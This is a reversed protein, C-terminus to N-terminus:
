SQIRRSMIYANEGDAYYGRITRQIEFGVK